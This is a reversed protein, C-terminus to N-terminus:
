WPPMLAVATAVPRLEWTAPADRPVRVSWETVDLVTRGGVVEANERSAFFSTFLEGNDQWARPAAVSPVPAEAPYEGRWAAPDLVLRKQWGGPWQCHVLIEAYAAPDLDGRHLRTGLSAVADPDTLHVAAGDHPVLIVDTPPQGEFNQDDRRVVVVAEVWPAQQVRLWNRTVRVSFSRDATELDVAPGDPFDKRWEVTEDPRLVFRRALDVLLDATIV